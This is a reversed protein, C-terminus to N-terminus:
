KKANALEEDIIESFNEIPVAGSIMQGNIFFTPTSKVGIKNGYEEDEQVAAAFKKANFCEDFKKEDAGVQKAYKKLNENDLKDQNKFLLDHYKWFKDMSQENVCLSAESAPRAEKHMPLPFHRFAIKIKNGYKKKLETVTEAGRACFPCQFDSFEIVVVAADKKGYFPANGAEVNVSMKPKSFYVEVPTSKTLKAIYDTIMDQRKMTQLYNIIREKIQPNIQNEPIRKEKVFKNYDSDSIKIDGKTINKKIFDDKSINASKAQAGILKEELMKNLRDLKLEYERKKLEMFDMKDDGILMEETIEDNGIKAVVGARPPDKFIYNPKAKAQRNSCASIIVFAAIAVLTTLVTFSVYKKNKVTIVGKLHPSM